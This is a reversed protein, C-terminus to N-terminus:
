IISEIINTINEKEFIEIRKRKNDGFDFAGDPIYAKVQLNLRGVGLDGTNFAVVYGENDEAKKLGESCTYNNETPKNRKQFILKKKTFTGCALTIDFDYDKMTLGETGIPPVDVNLKLGSGKIIESM